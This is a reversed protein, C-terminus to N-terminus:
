QPEGARTANTTEEKTKGREMQNWQIKVGLGYSPAVVQSSFRSLATTEDEGHM